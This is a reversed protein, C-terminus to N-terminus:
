ESAQKALKTYPVEKRMRSNLMQVEQGGSTGVCPLVKRISFQVSKSVIFM